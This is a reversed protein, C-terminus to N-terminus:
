SVWGAQHLWGMILWTGGGVFLGGLAAALLFLLAGRWTVRPPEGYM